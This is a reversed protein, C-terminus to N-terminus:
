EKFFEGEDFLKMRGGPNRDNLTESSTFITFVLLEFGLFTSILGEISMGKITVLLIIAFLSYRKLSGFRLAKPGIKKFNDVEENLLFWFLEAGIMGLSFGLFYKWGFISLIPSLFAYTLFLNLAFNVKIGNKM